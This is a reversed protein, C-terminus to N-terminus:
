RNRRHHREAARSAIISTPDGFLGVATADRLDSSTLGLDRLASEEMRCLLHYDRQAQHWAGIAAMPRHAAATLASLAASLASTCTAAISITM